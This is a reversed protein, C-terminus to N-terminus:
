SSHHMVERRIVEAIHPRMEYRKALRTKAARFPSTDLNEDCLDVLLDRAPDGAFCCDMSPLEPRHVCGADQMLDDVTKKYKQSGYKNGASFVRHLNKRSDPSMNVFQGADLSRGEIAVGERSADESTARGSYDLIHQACASWGRHAFTPCGQHLSADFGEQMGETDRVLRCVDPSCRNDAM